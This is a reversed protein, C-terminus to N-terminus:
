IRIKWNESEAGRHRLRRPDSRCPPGHRQPRAQHRSLSGSVLRGMCLDAPTRLDDAGHGSARWARQGSGARHGRSGRHRSIGPWRSMTRPAKPLRASRVRRGSCFACASVNSSARWAKRCRRPAAGILRAAAAFSGADVTRVLRASRGDKGFRRWESMWERFFPFSVDIRRDIISYDTGAHSGCHAKAVASGLALMRAACDLLPRPACSRSKATQM